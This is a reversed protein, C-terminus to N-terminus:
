PSHRWDAAWWQAHPMGSRLAADIVATADFPVRRLDVHLNGKNAEIVAYEAWPVNYPQNTQPDCEYALGVSGPNILLMDQYHRVMQQHTHGGALLTAHFGALIQQLEEEPTTAQIIATNSQPSGHFCLLDTEADISLPLLPRFSLLYALNAASLQDACWQDIEEFRRIEEGANPTFHPQLLWADTNGMITPYSLTRLRAATEDPQPGTAAVDGLCIVQDVPQQQLEALVAELAVLNGHIDSILAIKM